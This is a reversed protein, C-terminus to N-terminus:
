FRFGLGVIPGTLTLDVKFQDEGSGEDFELYMARYGGWVGFSRTFYYGLFGSLSWTLNTTVGGGVDGRLSAAFKRTLDASLRAGFIPDIGQENAGVSILRDFLDVDVDMSIYRGGALLELNLYQGDGAGLPRQYVNYWAGFDVLWTQIALDLEPLGAKADKQLKTYLGDVMLSWRRKRAEVHLLWGFDLDVLSDESGTDVPSDIIEGEGGSIGVSVDGDFGPVWLYAPIVDFEWRDQASGASGGCAILLVVLGITLLIKSTILRRSLNTKMM